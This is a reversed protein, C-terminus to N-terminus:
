RRTYVCISIILELIYGILIYKVRFEKIFYVLLRPGRRPGVELQYFIHPTSSPTETFEALIRIRDDCEATGTVDYKKEM